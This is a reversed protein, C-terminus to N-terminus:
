EELRTVSNQETDVRYLGAMPYVQQRRFDFAWASVDSVGPPLQSKDFSIDFVGFDHRVSPSPHHLYQLDASLAGRLFLPFASVQGVAFIMWGEQPDRRCLFLGDAQRTQGRIYATGSAEFQGSSLAEVSELKATGESLKPRLEFQDLRTSTLLPPRLLGIDDLRIAMEQNRTLPGQVVNRPLTKSFLQSTADRLRSSYFAEMLNEGYIWGVVCQMAVAGLAFPGAAALGRRWTGNKWLRWRQWWCFGLVIAGVVAYHAHITYRNWLAGTMDQLSAYIRSMAVMGGMAFSYVGVIIWPLMRRRRETKDPGLLLSVCSAILVLALIAGAYLAFDPLNGFVGRGLMAGGFMLIFRLGGWPDSIFAQLHRGMTEHQGQKYSFEPAAQNVLNQFYLSMILGAALVWVALFIMRERRDAFEGGWLIMPLLLPWILMGSGFCVSSLMGAVVCLSIKLPLRLRSQALALAGFIFFPAQYSSFCDAWLLTSAQVPSFLVLSCAAALLAFPHLDPLTRRAIFFLLGATACLLTFSTWNLLTLNGPALLYYIWVLTAPVTLRHEMQVFFADPWWHFTGAKFKEFFPLWVYDDMFPVNLVMERMWLFILLPPLLAAIWLVPNLIRRIPDSNAVPM